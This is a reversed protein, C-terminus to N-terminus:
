PPTPTVVTREPFLNNFRLSPDPPESMEPILSWEWTEDQQKPEEDGPTSTLLILVSTKSWPWAVHHDVYTIGRMNIQKVVYQERRECHWAFM